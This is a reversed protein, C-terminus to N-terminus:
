VVACLASKAHEYCGLFVLGGASMWLVRPTAGRMLGKAGETRHIELMTRLVGRAALPAGSGDVGLMLRTKAVDLPCTVLGAIAGQERLRIPM